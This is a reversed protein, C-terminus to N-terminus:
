NFYSIFYIYNLLLDYLKSGSSWNLGICENLTLSDLEYIGSSSDNNSSANLCWSVLWDYTKTKKEIQLMLEYFLIM